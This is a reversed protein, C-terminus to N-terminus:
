RPLRGARATARAPARVAWTPHLPLAGLRRVAAYSAAPVQPGRRSSRGAPLARGARPAPGSLPVRAGHVSDAAAGPRVARGPVPARDRSCTRPKRAARDTRIAERAPTSRGEARYGPALAEAVTRPSPRPPSAPTLCRRDTEACAGRPAGRRAALPAARRRAPRSELDGTTRAACRRCRTLCSVVLMPPRPSSTSHRALIPVAGADPLGGRPPAYCPHRRSRRRSRLSARPRPRRRAAPTWRRVRTSTRARSTAAVRTPRRAASSSTQRRAHVTCPPRRSAADGGLQAAHRASVDCRATRRRDPAVPRGASRSTRAAVYDMVLGRCAPGVPRDLGRAPGQHRAPRPRRANASAGQARGDLPLPRSSRSSTWDDTRAAPAAFGPGTGVLLPRAALARSSGARPQPTRATRRLSQTRPHVAARSRAPSSPLSPALPARCSSCLQRAHTPAPLPAKRRGCGLSVRPPSPVTGRSGGSSVIPQALAASRHVNLGKSTWRSIVSRAPGRVTLTSRSDNQIPSEATTTRPRARGRPRTRRTSSTRAAAAPGSCTLVSGPKGNGTRPLAPLRPVRNVDIRSPSTSLTPGARTLSRQAPSAARRGLLEIRCPELLCRAGARRDVRPVLGEHLERVM